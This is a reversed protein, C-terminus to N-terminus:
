VCGTNTPDYIDTGRPIDITPYIENINSRSGGFNTGRIMNPMKSAM